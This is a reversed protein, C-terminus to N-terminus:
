ESSLAAHGVIGLTMAAVCPAYVSQTLGLIAQSIFIPYFAGSVIVVYCCVGIILSAVILLLRKYRTHDILGGAPPQAIIGVIGPITIVIGIQEPNWDRVTLLFVSLYVGVGDRVDAM